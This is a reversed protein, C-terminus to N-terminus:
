NIRLGQYHYARWRVFEDPLFLYLCAFFLDRRNVKGVKCRRSFKAQNVKSFFINTRRVNKYLTDWSYHNTHPTSWNWMWGQLDDQTMLSQNFSTVGWDPTFHSEDSYDSLREISFPLGLASRYMANVVQEALGPDNWVADASYEGLPKKDLFDEAKQCAFVIVLISLFLGIYLTKRM